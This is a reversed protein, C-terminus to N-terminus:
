EAAQVFPLWSQPTVFPPEQDVLVAAEPEDLFLEGHNLNDFARAEFAYQGDAAGSFVASTAATQAIWIQWPGDDVRYQIDYYQIGSVGDSGSWSVTFSDTNVISPLPLITTTPPQTDVITEAEAPGFSEVNGFHDIGRARFEYTRGNEGNSYEHTTDEVGILWNEWAGGDIRVQVDYTAIGAGGPDSGSWTVPFNRRSYDPLPDVTVVPPEDDGGLTYDVVLQPFYVTTTERAYFAREREQVREDGIIEMGYNPHVGATWEQVLDTVDWEYWALTSGIFVTDYIGDWTPETAWTVSNEQWPSALRRVISGMPEDDSPTAFSLRLRLSAENITINDPLSGDVDFAILIREAGFEDFGVDNYGLFLADSGFNEFPRESAIYSDASAPLAVITNAATQFLVVPEREPATRDLSRPPPQPDPEPTQAGATLALGPLLAAFGFALLVLLRNIISRAPNM